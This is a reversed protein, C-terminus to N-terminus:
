HGGMGVRRKLIHWTRELRNYFDRVRRPDEDVMKVWSVGQYDEYRLGAPRRDDELAAWSVQFTHRGGSPVAIYSFETSRGRRDLLQVKSIAHEGHNQVAFTSAGEEVLVAHKAAAIARRNDLRQNRVLWFTNFLSVAVALYAAVSGFVAPDFNM